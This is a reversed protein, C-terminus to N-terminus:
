WPWAEGTGICARVELWAEKVAEEQEFKGVYALPLLPRWTAEELREGSANCLEKLVSVM